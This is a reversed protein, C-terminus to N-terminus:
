FFICKLFFFIFDFVDLMFYIGDEEEKDQIKKNM